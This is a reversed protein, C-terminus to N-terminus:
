RTFHTFKFRRRFLLVGLISLAIMGGGAFGVIMRKQFEKQGDIIANKREEVVFNFGVEGKFEKGEIDVVLRYKGLMGTKENIPFEKYFAITGNSLKPAAKEKMSQVLTGKEDYIKYSLTYKFESKSANLLPTIVFLARLEEGIYVRNDDNIIIGDPYFAKKPATATTEPPKTSADPKTTGAHDDTETSEDPETSEASETRIIIPASTKDKNFFWIKSTTTDGSMGEPFTYQWGKEPDNQTQVFISKGTKTDIIEAMVYGEGYEDINFIPEIYISPIEQESQQDASEEAVEQPKTAAPKTAIPKTTAPPKISEPETSIPPIQPEVPKTIVDTITDIFEETPTKTPEPKKKKILIVGGGISVPTLEEEEPPIIPEGSITLNLSVNAFANETFLSQSLSFIILISSLIAASTTSTM